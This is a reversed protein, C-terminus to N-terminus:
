SSVNIAGNKKMQLNLNLKNETCFKNFKTLLCEIAKDPTSLNNALEGDTYSGGIFFIKDKKIKEKIFNTLTSNGCGWESSRQRICEITVFGIRRFYEPSCLFALDSISICNMDIKNTYMTYMDSQQNFEFMYLDVICKSIILTQLLALIAIDRNYIQKESYGCSFPLDVMIKIYPNPTPLGFDLCCEPIGSVFSGMDYINGQESMQIGNDKENFYKSSQINELFYETSNEFGYFMGQLTEEINHRGWWDDRNEDIQMQVTRYKKEKFEDSIFNYQDVLGNFDACKISRNNDKFTYLRVM